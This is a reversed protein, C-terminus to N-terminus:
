LLTEFNKAIRLKREVRGRLKWQTSNTLMAYNKFVLTLILFVFIGNETIRLCSIQLCPYISIASSLFLHSATTFATIFRHTGYLVLGLHMPGPSPGYGM